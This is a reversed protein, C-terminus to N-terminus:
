KKILEIAQEAYGEFREALSAACSPVIEQGVFDIIAQEISDRDARTMEPDTILDKVRQMIKERLDETLDNSDVIDVFASAIPTSVSRGFKNTESYGWAGDNKTVINLAATILTHDPM